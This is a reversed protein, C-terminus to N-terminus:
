LIFTNKYHVKILINHYLSRKNEKKHLQFNNKIECTYQNLM